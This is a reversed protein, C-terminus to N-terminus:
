WCIYIYSHNFEGVELVMYGLSKLKPIVGSRSPTPYSINNINYDKAEQIAQLILDVFTDEIADLRKMAKYRVTSM